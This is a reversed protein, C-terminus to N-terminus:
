PVLHQTSTRPLRPDEVALNQALLLLPSETLVQGSGEFSGLDEDLLAHHPAWLVCVDYDCM